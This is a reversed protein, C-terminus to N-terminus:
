VLCNRKQMFRRMERSHKVTSASVRIDPFRDLLLAMAEADRNTIVMSLATEHPRTPDPSPSTAEARAGLDLLARIFEYRDLKRPNLLLLELPTRDGDNLVDAALEMSVQPQMHRFLKLIDLRKSDTAFHLCTYGNPGQINWNAGRELLAKVARRHGERCAHMLPTTKNEDPADVSAGHDLLYQIVIAHGARAAHCLATLGQHQHTLHLPQVSNSRFQQELLTMIDSEKPHQLAVFLPRNREDIGGSTHEEVPASIELTEQADKFSPSPSLPPTHHNIRPGPLPLSQTRPLTPVILPPLLLIRPSVQAGLPRTEISSLMDAEVPNQSLMQIQRLEVQVELASPRAERDFNQMSKLLQGCRQIVKPASHRLCDQFKIVPPLLTGNAYFHDSRKPHCRQRNQDYAELGPLGYLRRCLVVSLICGLSWVDSRGSYEPVEPPTYAFRARNRHVAKSAAYVPKGPIAKPDPGLNASLGFDTLMWHGGDAHKPNRILVNNPTLDMHYIADESFEPYHLSHLASALNEVQRLLARLTTAPNLRGPKYLFDELNSDLKSTLISLDMDFDIMALPIVIHNHTLRRKLLLLLNASEKEFDRKNDFCKRAVVKNMSNLSGDEERFGGPAISECLVRGCAGQGIVSVKDKLFPLRFGRHTSSSDLQSNQKYEIVVPNFVGIRSEFVWAFRAGLGPTLDAATLDMVADDTSGLTSAGGRLFLDPFIRWKDWGIAVLISLTRLLDRKIDRIHQESLTLGVAATFDHLEEMSWHADLRMHTVFERAPWGRNFLLGLIEEAHREIAARGSVDSANETESISGRSSTEPVETRAVRNFIGLVM